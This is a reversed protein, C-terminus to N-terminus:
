FKQCTCNQGEVLYDGAKDNGGRVKDAGVHRRWASGEERPGVLRVRTGAAVDGMAVAVTASRIAESSM